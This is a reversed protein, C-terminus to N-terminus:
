PVSLGHSTLNSQFIEWSKRKRYKRKKAANRQHECICIKKRLSALVVDIEMCHTTTNKVFQLILLITTRNIIHKSLTSTSTEKWGTVLSGGHAVASLQLTRENHIDNDYVTSENKLLKTSFM